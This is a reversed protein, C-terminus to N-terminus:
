QESEAKEAKVAAEYLDEAEEKSYPLDAPGGIYAAAERRHLMNVMADMAKRREEDPVRGLVIDTLRDIKAELRDLRSSIEDASM